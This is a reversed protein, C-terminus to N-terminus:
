LRARTAPGNPAAPTSPVPSALGPLFCADILVAAGDRCRV